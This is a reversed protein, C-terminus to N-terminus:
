KECWACFEVVCARCLTKIVTLDRLDRFSDLSCDVTALLIWGEPKKKDETVERCGCRTCMHEWGLHRITM